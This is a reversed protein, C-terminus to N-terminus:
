YNVNFTILPLDNLCITFFIINENQEYKIRFNTNYYVCLKTEVEQILSFFENKTTKEKVASGIDNLLNQFLAFDDKINKM